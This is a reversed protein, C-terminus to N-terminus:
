PTGTETAVQIYTDGKRDTFRIKVPLRYHDLAIWIETVNDTMARLHLTRFTGAPTVIEEEGLSDLAYREYKKGTVVGLSAGAEPRPLYALQYALSLMDQTGPAIAQVSGDRALRVEQRAWDFDANENTDKGNRQVRYHEPQLGAGTLRGSSETEMRVPKFLAVLGSTETVGRLRYAGDADFEWHHEARGVPFNISEKYLAFRITGSGSLVPQPAALPQITATSTSNQPMETVLADSDDAPAPTPALTPTPSHGAPELPRVTSNATGHRLPQSPKALAPPPVAAPLPRLEAQLPPAEPASGPLEISTGWLAAVHLALSGLLAALLAAPM